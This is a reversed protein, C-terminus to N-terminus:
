PDLTLTETHKITAPLFESEYVDDSPMWACYVISEDESTGTVTMTPGGSNLVVLDGPKFM